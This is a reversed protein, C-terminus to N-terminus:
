RAQASARRDLVVAAIFLAYLLGGVLALVNAVGEANPRVFSSGALAIWVVSHGWRLILGRWLPRAPAEPKPRPWIVAYIAAVVLCGGGLVLWLM